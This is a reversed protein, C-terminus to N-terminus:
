FIWGFHPFGISFINIFFSCLVIELRWGNKWFLNNIYSLLITWEFVKANICIRM